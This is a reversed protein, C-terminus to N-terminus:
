QDLESKIWFIFQINLINLTNCMLDSHHLFTIPSLPTQILTTIITLSLKHAQSGGGGEREEGLMVYCVNCAHKIEVRVVWFYGTEQSNNTM